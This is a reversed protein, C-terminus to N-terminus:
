RHRVHFIMEPSLQSNFLGGDWDGLTLTNMLGTQQLLAEIQDQRWFRLRSTSVLTEAPFHYMLKFTMIDDKFDILHRSERVMVTPLQLELEYEWCISWNFDPNRSEFVFQGNFDLHKKVQKFTDLVDQETLLVQFAHGTMIILHYTQNLHFDQSSSQLWHLNEHHYTSQGVSLMEESPDVGTVLHGQKAYAHCLLGTGCGLDLIREPTSGALDLYFDRDASWGCGYDYLEVLKPHVYHHDLM